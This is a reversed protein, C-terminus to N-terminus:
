FGVQTHASNHQSNDSPKRLKSFFNRFSTGGSGAGGGTAAKTGGSNSTSHSMSRKGIKVAAVEDELTTNSVRKSALKSAAFPVNHQQCGHPKGTEADASNSWTGIAIQTIKNSIKLLRSSPHTNSPAIGSTPQAASLGASAGLGIGGSWNGSCGSINDVIPSPSGDEDTSFNSTLSLEATWLPSTSYEAANESIGNARLFNSLAELDERSVGRLLTKMRALLHKREMGYLEMLKQAFELIPMEKSRWRKMLVAFKNLEEHTLCASLMTLYDNILEVTNKSSQSGSTTTTTASSPLRCVNKAQSSSPQPTQKSTQHSIPVANNADFTALPIHEHYPSAASSNTSCSQITAFQDRTTHDGKQITGDDEDDLSSMAERYVYQFCLALHSCIQEATQLTRTYLVALDYIDNSGGASSAHVHGDSNIDGIKLPVINLAEEKVFGVSALMHLPVVLLLNDDDQLNIPLARLTVAECNIELQADEIFDTRSGLITIHGLTEAEDLIKLLDTRGSPDIDCGIEPVLGAYKVSFRKTEISAGNGSVASSNTNWTGM